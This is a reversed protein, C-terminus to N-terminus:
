QYWGAFGKEGYRTVEKLKKAKKTGGGEEGSV